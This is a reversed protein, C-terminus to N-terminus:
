LEALAKQAAAHQPNTQLTAEFHARAEDKRGLKALIAGASYHASASNPRAALVIEYLRLAEAFNEEREAIIALEVAGLVPHLAQVRQAFERAKEKSGGAIEPANGYFRALGILGAVHKPDLAVSKEFAGKMKMSIVAMQMFNVEGIRRSLATGLQSHHDARNPELKVAQEAAEVADKARGQAARVQSLLNFAGADTSGEGTLPLVIAEAAAPDGSRLAAGAKELDSQAFASVALLFSVASAAISQTNTKM